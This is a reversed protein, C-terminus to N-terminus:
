IDRLSIFGHEQHTELTLQSRWREYVGDGDRLGGANTNGEFTRIRFRGNPQNQVEAIFGIHGQFGNSTKNLWFFLHGRNPENVLRRNARAWTRWNVVGAAARAQPLKSPPAGCELLVTYVFAACWPQPPKLQVNALFREIEPGKNSGGQEKTGVYARALHVANEWIPNKDWQDDTLTTVRAPRKPKM